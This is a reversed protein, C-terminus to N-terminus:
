RCDEIVRTVEAWSPLILPPLGETEVAFRGKSLAMADLLPDDGRLAATVNSMEGISLRAAIARSTAETRVQMTPSAVSQGAMILSIERSPQWCQIAFAVGRTPTNFIALTFNGRNEYGWTGPTEAEDMWDDSHPPQVISPRLQAESAAARAANVTVPSPASGQPAAVCGACGLALATTLLAAKMGGSQASSGRRTWARDDM